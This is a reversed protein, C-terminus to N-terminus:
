NKLVCRQSTLAFSYKDIARQVALIGNLHDFEHQILESLDNELIMIQNKWNMDKYRLCICKHRKVRVLLEPFSICDDWLVITERSKKSLMPNIIIIPRDIHMFIIRKFIGIQPAAIARGFGNKKKFNLLTDQLDKISPKIKSLEDKKVNLSIQYLSPNGLKLIEKIAM